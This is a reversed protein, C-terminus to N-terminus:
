TAQLKKLMKQRKKLEKLDLNKFCIILEHKFGPKFKKYNVIFKKLNIIKTYKSSLYLVKIKNM